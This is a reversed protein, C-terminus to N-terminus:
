KREKLLQWKRTIKKRKDSWLKMLELMRRSKMEYFEPWSRNTKKKENIKIIEVDPMSGILRSLKCESGCSYFHCCM